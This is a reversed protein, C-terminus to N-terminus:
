AYQGASYSASSLHAQAICTRSLVSGDQTIGFIPFLKTKNAGGTTRDQRRRKHYYIVYVIAPHGQLDAHKRPL